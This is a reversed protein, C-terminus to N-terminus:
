IPIRFVSVLVAIGFIAIRRVSPMLVTIGFIAFFSAIIGFLFSRFTLGFFVFGFGNWNRCFFNCLQGFIFVFGFSGRGFSRGFFLSLFFSVKLLFFKHVFYM